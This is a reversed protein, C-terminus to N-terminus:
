FTTEKNGSRSDLICWQQEPEASAPLYEVSRSSISSAANVCFIHLTKMGPNKPFSMTIVPSRMGLGCSSPSVGPIELVHKHGSKAVSISDYYPHLSSSVFVFSHLGAHVSYFRYLSIWQLFSTFHNGCINIEKYHFESYHKVVKNTTFKVTIM